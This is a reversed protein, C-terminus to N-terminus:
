TLIIMETHNHTGRVRIKLSPKWISGVSWYKLQLVSCRICVKKIKKTKYLVPHLKQFVKEHM